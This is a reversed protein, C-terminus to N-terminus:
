KDIVQELFNYVDEYTQCSWLDTVNYNINKVSNVIDHGWDFTYGNNPRIAYITSGPKMFIGNHFSTGIIGAMYKANYFLKIQERLSMGSLSIIKYGRSSFFDELSNHIWDEFYRVTFYGEHIFGKEKLEQSVDRRTIYIKDPYERDEIQFRSFYRIMSKSIEETEGEYSTPFFDSYLLLSNDLILVLQDIVIHFGAFEELTLHKTEKCDNTIIEVVEDILNSISQHNWVDTRRDAGTLNLFIPKINPFLEKAHIFSGISEKIFHGYHMGGDTIFMNTGSLHIKNSSWPNAHFNKFVYVPYNSTQVVELSEYFYQSKLFNIECSLNRDFGNYPINLTM